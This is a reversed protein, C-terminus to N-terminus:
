RREQRPLAGSLEARLRRNDERLEEIEECCIKVRGHLREIEAYQADIVNQMEAVGQQILKDANNNM